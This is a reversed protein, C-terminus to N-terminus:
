TIKLCTPDLVFKMNLSLFQNVPLHRWVNLIVSKQHTKYAVLWLISSINLVCLSGLDDYVADAHWFIFWEHYISFCANCCM